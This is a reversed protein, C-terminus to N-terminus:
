GKIKDYESKILRLDHLKDRTAGIAALEATDVDSSAIQQLTRYVERAFDPFAAARSYYRLEPAVAAVARATIMVGGEQSLTKGRPVIRHALRSLTLVECDMAGSYQGCDDCFLAQEVSQTYRDPCLVIYYEDPSFERSNVDAVLQRLARPYSDYHLEKM